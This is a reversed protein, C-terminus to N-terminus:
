APLGDDDYLDSHDSTIRTDSAVAAAAQAIDLMRQASRRKPPADQQAAALSDAIARGVAATITTGTLRALEKADRHIQEDKITLPM